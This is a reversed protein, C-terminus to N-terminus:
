PRPPRQTLWKIYSIFRWKPPRDNIWNIYNKCRIQFKLAQLKKSNMNDVGIECNLCYQKSLDSIDTGCMVCRDEM